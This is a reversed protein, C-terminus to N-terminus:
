TLINLYKDPCSSKQSLKEGVGDDQEKDDNEDVYDDFDYGNNLPLIQSQQFINQDVITTIYEQWFALQFKYQEPEISCDFTTQLRFHDNAQSKNDTWLSPDVLQFGFMEEPAPFSACLQDECSSLHGFTGIQTGKGIILNVQCNDWKMLNDSIM